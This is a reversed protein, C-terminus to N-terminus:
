LTVSNELVKVAGGSITSLIQAEKVIRNITLRQLGSYVVIINAVFKFFMFYHLGQGGQDISTVTM